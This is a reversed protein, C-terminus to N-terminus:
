TTSIILTGYMQRSIMINSQKALENRQVAQIDEAVRGSQKINAPQKSGWWALWNTDTFPGEIRHQSKREIFYTYCIVNKHNGKDASKQDHPLRFGPKREGGEDSLHRTPILEMSRHAGNKESKSCQIYYRCTIRGTKGKVTADVSVYVNVGYSSRTQYVAEHSCGGAVVKWVSLM